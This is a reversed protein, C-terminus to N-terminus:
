QENEQLYIMLKLVALNRNLHISRFYDVEVKFGTPIHTLTINSDIKPISQKGSPTYREWLLNDRGISEIFSNFEDISLMIINALQQM